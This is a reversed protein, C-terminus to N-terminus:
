KKTYGNSLSKIKTEMGCKQLIKWIEEDTCVHYMDLNDRLTMSFLVPLQPIISLHHRVYSRPLTHIPISDIIIQGESLDRMRFLAQFISTKGAGTRGVIGIKEGSHIHFSINKLACELDVRYSLTVNEFTITGFEPWNLPIDLAPLLPFSL